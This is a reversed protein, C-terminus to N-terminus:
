GRQRQFDGLLGELPVDELTMIYPRALKKLDATAMKEPGGLLLDKVHIIRLPVEADGVLPFRSLRSERIIKFHEEWTAGVRLVKAGDRGRMADRVRLEGLDFINELFLLRRFSMMGTSQSQALIIRLE